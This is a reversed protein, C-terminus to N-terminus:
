KKFVGLNVFLEKRDKGSFTEIKTRRDNQTVSAHLMAVELQKNAKQTQRKRRLAKRKERHKGGDSHFQINRQVSKPRIATQMM